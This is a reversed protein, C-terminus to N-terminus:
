FLQYSVKLSLSYIQLFFCFEQSYKRLFVCEFSQLNVSRIWSCFCLFFLSFVNILRTLSSSVVHVHRRERSRHHQSVPHCRKQNWPCIRQTSLMHKSSESFIKQPNYMKNELNRKSKCIYKKFFNQFRRNEIVLLHCFYNNLFNKIYKLKKSLM